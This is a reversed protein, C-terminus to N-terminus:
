LFACVADQTSFPFRPGSHLPQDQAGLDLSQTAPKGLAVRLAPGPLAHGDGGRGQRGVAEGRQWLCIEM